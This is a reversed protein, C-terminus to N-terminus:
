SIEIRTRPFRVHMHSAIVSALIGQRYSGGQHKDSHTAEYQSRTCQASISGRLAKNAPSFTNQASYTGIETYTSSERMHTAICCIMTPAIHVVTQNKGLHFAQTLGGILHLPTRSIWLCLPTTTENHAKYTKPMEHFSLLHTQIGYLRVRCRTSFIM